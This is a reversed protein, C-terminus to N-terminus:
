LVQARITALQQTVCVVDDIDIDNLVRRVPHNDLIGSASIAVTTDTSKYVDPVSTKISLPKNGKADGTMAKVEHHWCLNQEKGM